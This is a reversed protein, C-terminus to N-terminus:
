VHGNMTDNYLYGKNLDLPAIVCLIDTEFYMKRKNLNLMFNNDFECYIGLLAPYPYSEYMIEIVEFYAKTKLGEIDM